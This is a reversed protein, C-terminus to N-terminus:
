EERFPTALGTMYFYDELNDILFEGGEGGQM